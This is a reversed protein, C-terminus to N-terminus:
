GAISSSTCHPPSPVPRSLSSRKRITRPYACCVGGGAGDGHSVRHPILPLFLGAALRITCTRGYKKRGTREPKKDERSMRKRLPVRIKYPQLFLLGSVLLEFAVTSVKSPLPMFLSLSPLRLINRTDM